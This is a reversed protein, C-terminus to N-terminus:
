EEELTGVEVGDKDILHKVGDADTVLRLANEMIEPFAANMAEHAAKRGADTRRVLDMWHAKVAHTLPADIEDEIWGRNRPDKYDLNRVFVIESFLKETPDLKVKVQAPDCNCLNCLDELTAGASQWLDLAISICQGIEAFRSEAVRYEERLKSLRQTGLPSTIGASEAKKLSRDLARIAAWKEVLEQSAVRSRLRYLVLLSLMDRRLEERNGQVSATGARGIYEYVKFDIAEKNM